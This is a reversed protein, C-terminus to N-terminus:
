RAASILRGLRQMAISIQEPASNSFNLRMCSRGDAANVCFPAGPVFAVKEQEVAQKLLETADIDGALEVWLFLGGEPVTYRCDAPFHRKLGDLMAALRARYIGAIRELHAPLLGRSLFEACIAQPLIATHVDAGQKLAELKATIDAAAVCVGVRLGPSIIKSFSNMLVVNGATDFAKVPPVAEGSLRVDGYPDDELVILDYEAALEAIRRRRAAPITRGTPNQFTPITYLLRPQESRIKAELDEIVIGADDTAVPTVRLGRKYLENLTGLFTPNEVLVTDGENCFLELTLAIGQTSGTFIITNELEARVGKPLALSDLYARRLPQYGPTVGYQLIDAGHTALLDDTIRRVDELPFSEKAPNGGGLSIIEPDGALKFLERIVNGPVRSVRETFRHM